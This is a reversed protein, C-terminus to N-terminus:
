GGREAADQSAGDKVQGEGEQDSDNDAVVWSGVKVTTHEAAEDLQLADRISMGLREQPVNRLMCDSYEGNGHAAAIDATLKSLPMNDADVQLTIPELVSGRRVTLSLM